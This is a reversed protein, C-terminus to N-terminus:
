TTPEPKYKKKIIKNESDGGFRKRQKFHPYPEYDGIPKEVYLSDVQNPIPLHPPDMDALGGDLGLDIDNKYDELSQPPPRNTSKMKQMIKQNQERTIRENKIFENYKTKNQRIVMLQDIKETNDIKLDSDIGM